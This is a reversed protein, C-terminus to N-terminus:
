KYIEKLSEEIAADLEKDNDCELSTPMDAPVDEKPSTPSFAYVFMGKMGDHGVEVLKNHDKDVIFYTAKEGNSDMRCVLVGNPSKLWVHQELTGDDNSIDTLQEWSVYKSNYQKLKEATSRLEDSAEDVAEKAENKLKMQKGLNVIIENNDGQGVFDVKYKKGDASFAVVEANLWDNDDKVFSNLDDLVEKLTSGKGASEEVNQQAESVSQNIYKAKLVPYQEAFANAAAEDHFTAVWSGDLEEIKWADEGNEKVKTVKCKFKDSDVENIDVDGCEGFSGVHLRYYKDNVVPKSLNQISSRIADAFRNVEKIDSSDGDATGAKLKEIFAPVEKELGKDILKKFQEVSKIFMDSKFFKDIDFGYNAFLENKGLVDVQTPSINKFIFWQSPDTTYTSKDNADKHHFTKSRLKVVFAISFSPCNHNKLASHFKFACLRSFKHGGGYIRMEFMDHIPEYGFCMATMRDVTKGLNEDTKFNIM